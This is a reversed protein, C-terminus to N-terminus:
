AITGLSALEGAISEMEAASLSLEAARANLAVQADDRAGALAVTIGPRAITWALVLQSLSVGRDDALPKIRDLFADVKRINDASFYKTRPRSDGENFVHDPKFKGTLLGRQMPSYAIVSKHHDLCYPVLHEEIERNVMSYPVQDSAISLSKEAEAMQDQDYNCVGAERIKGQKKLLALAEMTESIPTTLDPWHIQYLDIVDTRLRRLSQECEHIVSERSACRHVEIQRGSADVDRFHVSGHPHDWRLGFKTLLQVKDRPVGKLAEAVIEESLGYGYIPATDITTMGHDLAAHIARLAAKRDAGGWMWGGIAWAGFAIVSCALDSQGLQRYEM